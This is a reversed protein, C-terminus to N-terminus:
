KTKVMPNKSIPNKIIQVWVTHVKLVELAAVEDAEQPNTRPEVEESHAKMLAKVVKTINLDEEAVVVEEAEEQSLRLDAIEITIQLM